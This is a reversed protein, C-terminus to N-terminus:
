RTSKSSIELMEFRNIVNSVKNAIISDNVAKPWSMKRGRRLDYRIDLFDHSHLLAAGDKHSDQHHICVTRIVERTTLTIYIGSIRLFIKPVLDFRDLIKITEERLYHVLKLTPAQGIDNHSGIMTLQKSRDIPTM